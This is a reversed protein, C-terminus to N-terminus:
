GKRHQREGHDRHGQEAHRAEDQRRDQHNQEFSQVVLAVELIPDM